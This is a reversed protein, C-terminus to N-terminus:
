ALALAGRAGDALALATLTVPGPAPHATWAGDREDPPPDPQSDLLMSAMELAAVGDVMCHHAKGVLGITGDALNDAIWLEWLPGGRALPVSMVADVVKGLDSGTDHLVHRDVDFDPDDVWVPDAMALPDGELRQRWRPARGLRGAIHDRLSAFDCPRDDAPRLLTSAWGVHMHAEPGEVELFSADLPSLRPAPM